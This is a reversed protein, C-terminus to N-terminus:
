AAPYRGELNGACAFRRSAAIASVPIGARNGLYGLAVAPYGIMLGMPFYLAAFVRPDVAPRLPVNVSPPQGAASAM